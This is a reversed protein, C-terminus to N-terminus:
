DAHRGGKKAERAAKRESAIEALRGICEPDRGPLACDQCVLLEDAEGLPKVLETSPAFAEALRSSGLMMALGDLQRGVNLDVGMHEIRVRYFLPVQTHCLPKGCLDCPRIDSPQMAKM